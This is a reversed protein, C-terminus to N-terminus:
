RRRRHAAQLPGGGAPLSKESVSDGVDADTSGPCDAVVVTVVGVVAPLACVTVSSAVPRGSPAFAVNLGALTWDPPVAVSVMVVDAVM